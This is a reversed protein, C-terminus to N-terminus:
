ATRNIALNVSRTIKMPRPGGTEAALRRQNM